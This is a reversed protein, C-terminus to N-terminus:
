RKCTGKLRAFKAEEPLAALRVGTNVILGVCITVYDMWLGKVHGQTFGHTLDLGNYRYSKLAKFEM